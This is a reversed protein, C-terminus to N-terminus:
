GEVPINLAEFDAYIIYPAWMQKHHNTFKVINQGEKPMVTRQPKGGIGQCDNKHIRKRFYTYLARSATILQHM